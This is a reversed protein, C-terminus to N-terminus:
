ITLYGRLYLNATYSGGARTWKISQCNSPIAIAIGHYGYVEGGGNNGGGLGAETTSGITSGTGGTGTYLTVAGRTGSNLYYTAYVWGYLAICGSPVDYTSGNSLTVNLTEATVSSPADSTWTTGDSVLVNGSTGPAVFQVPDTGNGLLVNNATLTSAGTGGNAVSLDTGSWETNSITDLVALDGLALNSIATNVFATTAIKTSSDATDSVTTAITGSPLTPTGTFTESNIDGKSAIAAAIATFEADLESGKVVKGVDGTTLTDKSTFNTAKIYDSM